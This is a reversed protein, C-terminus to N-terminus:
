KKNIIIHTILYLDMRYGKLFCIVNENVLSTAMTHGNNLFMFLVVYVQSQQQITLTNFGAFYVRNLYAIAMISGGSGSISSRRILSLNQSHFRVLNHLKSEVTVIYNNNM